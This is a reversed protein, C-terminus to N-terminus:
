WDRREPGRVKTIDWTWVEDPRRVVRPQRKRISCKSLLIRYMTSVSALHHGEELLTAHVESPSADVFHEACLAEYV